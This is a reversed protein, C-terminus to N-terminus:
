KLQMWCLCGYCPVIWLSHVSSYYESFFHTKLLNKFSLLSSAPRIYQHLANWLRPAVVSFARFPETYYISSWRFAPLPSKSRIVSGAKSVLHAHFYCEILRTDRTLVDNFYDMHCWPNLQLKICSRSYKKHVFFVFNVKNLNRKKTDTKSVFTRLHMCTINSISANQHLVVMERLEDDTYEPEFLYPQAFFQLDNETSIKLCREINTFLTCSKSKM